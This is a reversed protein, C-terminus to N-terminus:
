SADRRGGNGRVSSRVRTSRRGQKLEILAQDARDFLTMVSEEGELTAVGVTVTVSTPGGRTVVPVARLQAAVRGALVGAQGASTEPLIVAFEDGGIRAVRDSSRFARSLNTAVCRLVDDGALHGLTDNVLKFDDVDLVLVSLDRDYRQARSMEYDLVQEFSARNSLGTVHDLEAARWTDAVVEALDPRGAACLVDITEAIARVGDQM